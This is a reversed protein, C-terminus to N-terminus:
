KDGYGDKWYNKGYGYGKRKIGNLVISAQKINNTETIKNIKKIQEKLSYNLRLVFLNVDSYRSTWIADPVLLIPANDIVIHDFLMRAENLFEEFRPSELLESPNRPIRGAQALYLNPVQTETVVEDFSHEGNLYTSLGIDEPIDLFSHLRPRRLDAGVLLVRKNAMSLITAFNTSIFSKGEGSILSNISIVKNETNRLAYQLYIKLGRFSEAMGSRPHGLVPLLSKYSHSLIGDYYPLKSDKEVDEPAEIKNNFYGGITVFFFPILFGTFLGGFAFIYLANQNVHVATEVLAEDIIKAQPAVSALNISAEAKKKLMFNYMETNVDFERQMEILKKETEPLKTLRSQISQFRSELNAKERQANELSNRLNEELAEKTISIEKELLVFNPSKEQVSIALIERRQMLDSLKSVLQSLRTGNESEIAPASINGLRESDNISTSLEQYYEIDQQLSFQENEIEELKEYVLSAEQGLNMAQNAQRFNNLREGSARLKESIEETQEDIFSVSKRSSLSEKEIGFKIFVDCLENLFEADKLPVEGELSLTVLESQRDKYEVVIKEQYAIALRNAKNFKFYYEEGVEVYKKTLKFDFFPNKFNETYNGKQEFDLKQDVGNIRAESNVSILYNEDDLVKIKLLVDQLNKAGESVIVNFPENKYLEQTKLFSKKYFSTEWNLNDIAEKFVSYSLLVGVQDDINSSTRNRNGEFSIDNSLSNDEGLILLRSKVEYKEPTIKYLGYGLVLGLFCFLVFWPWKKIYRLYGKKISEKEETEISNIIKEFKEM